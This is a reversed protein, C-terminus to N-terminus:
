SKSATLHMIYHLIDLMGSIASRAYNGETYLISANSFLAALPGPDYEGPTSNPKLVARM